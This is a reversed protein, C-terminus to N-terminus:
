QWDAGRVGGDDDFLENILDNSADFTCLKEEAHTCRITTTKLHNELQQSRRENRSTVREEDVSSGVLLVRNEPM